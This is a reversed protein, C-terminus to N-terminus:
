MFGIFVKMKVKKVNLKLGMGNWDKVFEDVLVQVKDKMEAILVVM